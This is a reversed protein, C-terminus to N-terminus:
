PKVELKAAESWSLTGPSYMPEVRAPAVRFTGANTVRLLYVLDLGM